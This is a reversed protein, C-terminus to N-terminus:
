VKLWFEKVIKILILYPIIKFTCLYMFFYILYDKWQGKWLIMARITSFTFIILTPVVFIIIISQSNFRFANLYAVLIIIAFPLILWTNIIFHQTFYIKFRDSVGVISMVIYELLYKLAFFIIALGIGILMYENSLYIKAGLYYYLFYQCVIVLVISRILFVLLIPILESVRMNRYRLQFVKDNFLGLFSSHYFDKFGFKLFLLLILILPIGLLMSPNNIQRKLQQVDWIPADDVRDNEINVVINSVAENNSNQILFSDVFEPSYERNQASVNNLQLFGLLLILYKM